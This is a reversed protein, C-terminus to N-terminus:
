LFIEKIYLIISKVLDINEPNSMEISLFKNYHLNKLENHLTRKEIPVLRPESIHIHNILKSNNKLIEISENNHILTGADVNVKIGPNNVKQCIKFAEATTNIFNTNYIPPNPEIAICTGCEAAYNGIQNFFDYAVPLCADVTMDQPIARNKPCGFVLNPCNLICAFDVAKKTYDVLKQRNVASEFISETIGFWISQISSVEIDYQEKLKYAFLKGQALNDYPADPFVRTPAIEIGKFNNDRLFGYMEEDYQASWAINSISLKM